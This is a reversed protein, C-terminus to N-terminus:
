FSLNKKRVKNLKNENIKEFNSRKLISYKENKNERKIDFRIYFVALYLRNSRIKINKNFKQNIIYLSFDNILIIEILKCLFMNRDSM